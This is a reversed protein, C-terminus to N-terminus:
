LDLSMQGVAGRRPEIIADRVFRADKRSAHRKVIGAAEAGFGAGKRLGWGADRAARAATVLDVVPEPYRLGRAGPWKWPEHLFGDSRFLM